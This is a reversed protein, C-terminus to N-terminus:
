ADGLGLLGELRHAVEGPAGRGDVVLVRPDTPPLLDRQADLRRAVVDPDLGLSLLRKRRDEEPVDLWVVTDFLSRDVHPSSLLLAGEVVLVRAGEERHRRIAARIEDMVRPHVIAELAAKLEPASFAARALRARDVAGTPSLIGAGFLAILARYATGGPEYTAWALADCDVHAVGPRRALLRAVTSKGAGAPGAIGVVKM